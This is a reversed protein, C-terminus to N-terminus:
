SVILCCEQCESEEHMHVQQQVRATCLIQNNSKNVLMVQGSMDSTKREMRGRACNTEERVMTWICWEGGRMGNEVRVMRRREYWQRCARNTEERVVTWVCWEGGRMGNEVRM